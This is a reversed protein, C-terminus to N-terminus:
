RGLNKSKSAQLERQRELELVEDARLRNAIFKKHTLDLDRISTLEAYHLEGNTSIRVVLGGSAAEGSENAYSVHQLYHNLEDNTFDSKGAAAADATQNIFSGLDSRGDEHPYADLYPVIRSVFSKEAPETEIFWHVERSVLTARPNSRELWAELKRHREREKSHDAHRQKFELLRLVGPFRIFLDCLRKDDPTQQLLNVVSPFGAKVRSSMAFGLGYLFNGIVVNEYLKM